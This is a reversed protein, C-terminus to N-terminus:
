LNRTIEVSANSLVSNKIPVDPKSIKIKVTIEPWNSLISNAIKEAVSEILNQSKGELIEKTIKYVSSYIITDTLDDSKGAMRLDCFLDIDVVFKQGKIKEEENVGHYGYFVMGELKIVDEVM